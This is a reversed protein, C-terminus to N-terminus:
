QISWMVTKICDKQLHLTVLWNMGKLQLSVIGSSRYEKSSNVKLEIFTQEPLEFCEETKMFIAGYQRLKSKLRDLMKHNKKTSRGCHFTVLKGIKEWNVYQKNYLEKSIKGDM